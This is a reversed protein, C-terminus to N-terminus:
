HAAPRRRQRGRLVSALPARPCAAIMLLRTRIIEDLGHVVRSPDRPDRICGALRSAIDLRQEVKRLVLLGDGTVQKFGGIAAEARVRKTCGSVKQWAARGHEAISQLRRDRQTPAATGSPVAAPRPPAIVAAKPHRQFVAAPVGDRDYAGDATFAASAGAQDPLPGVEAGDDVEKTTLAAAAIQGTDADLGIHLKRWSRRTKTGHKEVLGEGAGGLRLGTSDAM